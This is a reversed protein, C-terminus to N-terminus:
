RRLWTSPNVEKKEVMLTFDIKGGAGGEDDAAARGIVQSTRVTQGKSVSTGSLNSYVTFYKGHAIMVAWTGDGMSFVSLVEGDFVSKVPTGVSPTSITIGSNYGKLSTGPVTYTGYPISVYGEDVPYPLKGKNSSFNSSLAVEKANLPIAAATTTTRSTSKPTSTTTTGTTNNANNAKDLDALRKREADEAKRRADIERKIIASIANKLERDKKQRAAIQTKLDKEKSKLKNIVQDKEKKQDELVDYQKTQNQLATSKQTKKGLLQNKRDEIEKQTEIINTVQQQRYTRYSRLYAIRKLADNFSSASFIFNLYDYNSKNKYAYVVSRAYQTKLTDLQKQLKNIQISSLYIEDNILRIEKNINGIYRGQLAMKKQLLHLQGLTLKQEGKVKNYVSQIEKLEKQLNQREREMKARDDTQAFSLLGILLLFPLFTLKKM